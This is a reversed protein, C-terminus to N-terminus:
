VSRDARLKLSRRENITLAVDVLILNPLWAAWAIIPYADDFSYGSLLAIPLYVRLTVAGFTLAFSRIMWRRHEIINNFRKHIYGGLSFLVWCITLLLFGWRAAAGGSAKLSMVGGSVSGFAVGVLYLRGLWRHVNPSKLRIQRHLQLSGTILAVASGGFHSFAVGMNSDVLNAVFPTRLSPFLLMGISYSAVATSLVATIWWWYNTRAFM